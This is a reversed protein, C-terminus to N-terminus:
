QSQVARYFRQTRNVASSDELEFPQDGMTVSTVPEWTNFDSTAQVELKLGREAILKLAVRTDTLDSVALRTLKPIPVFPMYYVRGESNAVFESAFLYARIGPAATQRVTGIFFLTRFVGPYEITKLLASTAGDFVHTVRLKDQQVWLEPVGDDNLDPLVEIRRGFGAGPNENPSHLTRLWRGDAGSFLHTNVGIDGIGDGTIDGVGNLVSGFGNGANPEPDRLEFLVAGTKISRVIARGIGDITQGWSGALLEPTGDGDVDPIVEVFQLWFRYAAETNRITKVAKRTQSDFIYVRGTKSGWESQHILWDEKGDGTMDPLLRITTGFFGLSTPNPSNLTFLDAGTAGDVGRVQGFQDFLTQELLLDTTGDGNLDGAPHTSTGIDGRATVHYLPQLKAGDYVYVRATAVVYFEGVGDQTLDPLGGFAWGFGEGPKATPSIVETYAPPDQATAALAASIWHMFVANGSLTNM